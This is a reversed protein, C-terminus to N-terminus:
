SCGAKEPSYYMHSSVRHGHKTVASHGPPKAAFLAPNWRAALTLQEDSTLLYFSCRRPKVHCWHMLEGICSDSEPTVIHLIGSNLTLPTLPLCFGGLFASISLIFLDSRPCWCGTEMLTSSNCWLVLPIVRCHGKGRFLSTSPFDRLLIEVSFLLAPTPLELKKIQWWCAYSQEM